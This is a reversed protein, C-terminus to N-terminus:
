HNFNPFFLMGCFCICFGRIGSICVTLLNSWSALNRSIERIRFLMKTKTYKSMRIKLSGTLSDASKPKTVTFNGLPFVSSGPSALAVSWKPFNSFPGSMLPLASSLRKWRPFTFVILIANEKKLLRILNFLLKTDNVQFWADKTCYRIDAFSVMNTAGGIAASHVAAIM